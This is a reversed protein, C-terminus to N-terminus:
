HGTLLTWRPCPLRTKPVSCGDSVLGLQGGGVGASLSRHAVQGAGVETDEDASPLGTLSWGM